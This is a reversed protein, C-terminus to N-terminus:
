APELEKVPKKKAVPEQDGPLKDGRIPRLVKDAVGEIEHVHNPNGCDCPFTFRPSIKWMPAGDHPNCMLEECTVVAMHLRKGWASNRSKPPVVVWALDGKKCNM